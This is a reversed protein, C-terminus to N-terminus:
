SVDSLTKYLKEQKHKLRRLLKKDLGHIRALWKRCFAAGRDARIGADNILVRKTLYSTLKGNQRAHHCLVLLNHVIRDEDIRINGYREEGRYPPILENVDVPKYQPILISQNTNQSGKPPWWSVKVSHQLWFDYHRKTIKM